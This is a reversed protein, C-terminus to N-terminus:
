NTDPNMLGSCNSQAQYLYASDEYAEPEPVSIFEPLRNELEGTLNIVLASGANGKIEVALQNGAALSVEKELYTVQQNFDSERFLREGNLWVNAASTRRYNHQPGGNYIQLLFVGESEAGSFDFTETVPKGKAREFVHQEVLTISDAFAIFSLVLLPLALSWKSLKKM